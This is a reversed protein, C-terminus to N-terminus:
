EVITMENVLHGAGAFKDIIFLCYRIDLSINRCMDPDYMLDSMTGEWNRDFNIGVLHGNANLVPSGSNGGTTHNSAIFCVRLQGNKDAYKGYDGKRYLEKLREEVVYDYIAPDEKEMIGEITSYHGYHVADMPYYDDVKGYAVRLTLNADPYFRKEPQMQRLGQVYIRQLSDLSNEIIRIEPNLKDRLIKNFETALLYAPDNLIKKAHGPKYGKMFQQLTAPEGFISNKFIDNSIAEFNENHKDTLRNLTYPQLSKEVERFYAELLDGMLKRDIPQHYNKFFDNASTQLKNLVKNIDDDNKKKNISAKVLEDFQLAFRLLEVALASENLYTRALNLPKLLSHLSEFAPIINNFNEKDQGPTTAWSIFTREFDRKRNVADMRAIGRSEGIMKKWGNAIGAHKSAYQIRVAPHQNMAATMVELRRDRLRVAVPNFVSTINEVAIAPLFQRTTGPYGFVFTFDGKEVGKISVPLHYRPTYPVNDPSYDAPKNDKNVYIRFLAFDGTHRPWMWNDTDGGFKGINSPPAGVLRVDRFTETFVIYYENGYYFPRVQADFGSTDAAYKEIKRINLRIISDRKREPMTAETGNLVYATVDDMRKLLTVTLGPNPLEEKRSMAWFGKTLYDSEVSSHRQISGFGCHHNTLILGEASIIEATCGRGFLLIADKLSSKNVSYIDDATLRLGMAQMEKENLQKLLVPLWMGEIAYLMTFHMFALISFLLRKKM